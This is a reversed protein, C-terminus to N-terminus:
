AIILEWICLNCVTSHSFSKTTITWSLSYSLISIYYPIHQFTVPSLLSSSSPEIQLTLPHLQCKIVLLSPNSWQSLLMIACRHLRRDCNDLFVTRSNNNLVKRFITAQVDSQTRLNHAHTAHHVRWVWASSCTTSQDIYFSFVVEIEFNSWDCFFSQTLKYLCIYKSIQFLTM